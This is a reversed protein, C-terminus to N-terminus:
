NSKYYNFLIYFLFSVEPFKLRIRLFELTENVNPITLNLNLLNINQNISSTSEVDDYYMMM